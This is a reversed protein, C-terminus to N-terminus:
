KGPLNKRPRGPSRRKPTSNSYEATSQHMRQRLWEVTSGLRYRVLKDALKVFPPGYGGLRGRELWQPSVHLLLAEEATTLLREPNTDHHILSLVADARKDIHFNKPPIDSRASKKAASM